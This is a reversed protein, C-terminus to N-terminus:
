ETDGVVMVSLQGTLTELLYSKYNKGYKQSKNLCLLIEEHSQIIQHLIGNEHSPHSISMM